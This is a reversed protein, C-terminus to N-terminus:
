KANKYIKLSGMGLDLLRKYYLKMAFEKKIRGEQGSVSHQILAQLAKKQLALFRFISAKHRMKRREKLYETGKRMYGLWRRKM